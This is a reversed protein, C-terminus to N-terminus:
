KRRKVKKRKKEKMKMWKDVREKEDRKKLRM